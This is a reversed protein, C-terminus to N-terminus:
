EAEMTLLRLEVQEKFFHFRLLIVLLFLVRKFRLQIQERGGSRGLTASVKFTTALNNVITTTTTDISAVGGAVLSIQDAAASYIGTNNDGFIGFGPVSLTGRPARFQGDQGVSSVQNTYDSQNYIKVIDSSQGSTGSIRLASVAAIKNSFGWQQGFNMTARWSGATDILMGFVLRPLLEVRTVITCTGGADKPIFQFGQPGASLYGSPMNASNDHIVVSNTNSSANTTLLTINATPTSASGTPGIVTKETARDGILVKGVTAHSTSRLTLTGSASETGYVIPSILSTTAALTSAVTVRGSAAIRLREAASGANSTLFVLDGLQTTGSGTYLGQIQAVNANTSNYRAYFDLTGVVDNTALNANTTRAASFRRTPYSGTFRTEANDVVSAAASYIHLDTSPANTGIGLRNNATDWFLEAESTFTTSGDGILVQGATQAVFGLNTRATSASALDSLNLRQNLYDADLFAIRATTVFDPAVSDV